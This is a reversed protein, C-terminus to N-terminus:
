HCAATARNKQGGKLAMSHSSYYLPHEAVFHVPTTAKAM